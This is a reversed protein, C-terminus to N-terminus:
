LTATKPNFVKECSRLHCETWILGTVYDRIESRTALRRCRYCKPLPHWLRFHRLDGSSSELYIRKGIRKDFVGWLSDNSTDRKNGRHFLYLEGSEFRRRNFPIPKHKQM